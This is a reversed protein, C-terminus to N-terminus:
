VVSKRDIVKQIRVPEPYVVRNYPLSASPTMYPFPNINVPVLRNPEPREITEDAIEM